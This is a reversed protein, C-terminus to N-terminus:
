QVGGVHVVELGLQSHMEPNLPKIKPALSHPGGAQTVQASWSTMPWTLNLWIIPLFIGLPDNAYRLKLTCVKEIHQKVISLICDLFGFCMLM